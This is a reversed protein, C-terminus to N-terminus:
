GGPGMDHDDVLLVRIAGVDVDPSEIDLADPTTMAIQGDPKGRLARGRLSADAAYGDSMSLDHSSKTM